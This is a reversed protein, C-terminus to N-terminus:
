KLIRIEDLAGTNDFYLYIRIGKFFTSTAPMYAWKERKTASDENSIVPEGYQKKIEDKPTGKKIDGSEVAAKVRDFSKTEEAMAANIDAMSKGVEILSDLGEASAAACNALILAATILATKTM